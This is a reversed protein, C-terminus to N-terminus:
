EICLCKAELLGTDIEGLAPRQQLVALHLDPQGLSLRAVVAPDSVDVDGVHLEFCFPKALGTELDADHELQLALHPQEVHEVRVAVAYLEGLLESCPRARRGELSRVISRGTPLWSTRKRRSM